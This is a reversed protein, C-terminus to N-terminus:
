KLQSTAMENCTDKTCFVILIYHAFKKKKQLELCFIDTLGEWIGLSLYWFGFLLRNCLGGIYVSETADRFLLKWKKKHVNLIDEFSQFVCCVECTHGEECESLVERLTFYDEGLSSRLSSQGIM